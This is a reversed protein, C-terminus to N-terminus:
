ETEQKSGSAKATKTAAWAAQERGGMREESQGETQQRRQGM